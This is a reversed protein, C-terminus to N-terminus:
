IGDKKQMLKIILTMYFWEFIPDLNDNTASQIIYEM